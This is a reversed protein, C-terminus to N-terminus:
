LDANIGQRLDKFNLGNEYKSIKPVIRKISEVIPKFLKKYCPMKKIKSKNEQYKIGFNLREEQIKV